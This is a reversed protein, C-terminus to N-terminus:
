SPGTEFYGLIRISANTLIAAPDAASRARMTIPAGAGSRSRVDPIARRSHSRHIGPDPESSMPSSEPGSDPPVPARLDGIHCPPMCNSHTRM